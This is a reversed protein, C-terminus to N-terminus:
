LVKFARVQEVRESWEELVERLTEELPVKPEWGTREKLRTADGVLFPLDVEREGDRDELIPWAAGVLEELAMVLERLVHGEGSAVNYVEGPEGKILLLWYAEVVDRVDLYDRIPDLNGMRLERVEGWQALCVQRAAQPFLFRGDQGPGTHPFSRARLVELGYARAYLEGFFEMTAKSMGYPSLPRLPFEETIPGRDEEVRGYVDASSVLLIRAQPAGCRVAELLNVTGVVNTELTTLPDRFSERVSTVAALHVIAEPRVEELLTRLGERDGVDLPCWQRTGAPRQGMPLPDARRHTGIVEWGAEVLRMILHRGVFGGAGTILVRM